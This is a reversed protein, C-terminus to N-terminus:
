KTAAPKRKMTVMHNGLRCNGYGFRFGLERKPQSAFLKKWHPRMFGNGADMNACTWEGYTQYEFGAPEGYPPPVGTTDSVMWEVHDLLYTRITSFDGLGLLYSAAKTMGAVKGKKKLHKVPADWKKLHQNDINAMIHRYTQERKSGVKRFKIEVNGFGANAVYTNKLKDNKAIDEDTVYVIDGANDLRFYRVSTPEYGHLNLASLTFILQTPLKGGRMASIMNMTKSFNVTYLFDLESAVVRLQQKIQGENLRALARPDGAPELSLTTIEDADPYVTLATSLDGGAFPYVVTKPLGAPVNARFWTNAPTIWSDKYKQQTKTVRKCHEAVVV